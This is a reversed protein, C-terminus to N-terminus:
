RKGKRFGEWACVALALALFVSLRKDEPLWPKRKSPLKHSIEPFLEATAEAIRWRTPLRFSTLAALETTEIALCMVGCRECAQHIARHLTRGRRRLRRIPVAQVAVFLPRRRQITAVLKDTMRSASVPVNRMGSEVLLRPGETLAFAFGTRNGTVAMIRVVVRPEM